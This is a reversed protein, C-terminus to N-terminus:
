EGEVVPNKFQPNPHCGRNIGVPNCPEVPERWRRECAYYERIAKRSIDLKALEADTRAIAERTARHRAKCPDCEWFSRPHPVSQQRLVMLNQCVPCTRKVEIETGNTGPRPKKRCPVCTWVKTGSYGSYRKTKPLGCECIPTEVIPLEQGDFVAGDSNAADPGGSIDITETIVGNEPNLRRNAM